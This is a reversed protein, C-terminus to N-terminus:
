APATPAIVGPKAADAKAKPKIANVLSPLEFQKPQTEKSANLDRMHKARALFFALVTAVTAVQTPYASAFDGPAILIDSLNLDPLAGATASLVGEMTQLLEKQEPVSLGDLKPVQVDLPKGAAFKGIQEQLQLALGELMSWGFPAERTVAEVADGAITSADPAQVPAAVLPPALDDCLEQFMLGCTTSEQIPPSVITVNPVVGLAQNLQEVDGVGLAECLQGFSLGSLKPNAAIADLATQDLNGIDDCINANPAGIVLFNGAADQANALAENVLVNAANYAESAQEMEGVNEVPKVFDEPFLVVPEVGPGEVVPAAQQAIENVAEPVASPSVITEVNPPPAQTEKPFVVVPAADLAEEFMGEMSALSDPELSTVDAAATNASALGAGFAAASAALTTTKRTASVGEMCAYSEVVEASPGGSSEAEAGSKSTILTSGKVRRESRCVHKGRQKACAIQKVPAGTLDHAGRSLQGIAGQLSFM